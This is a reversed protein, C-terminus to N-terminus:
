KLAYLPWIHWNWSTRTLLGLKNSCFKKFPTLKIKKCALLVLYCQHLVQCGKLGSYQAAPRTTASLIHRGALWHRHHGIPRMCASCATRCLVLTVVVVLLAVKVAWVKCSQCASMDASCHCCSDHFSRSCHPLYRKLYSVWALSFSHRQETQKPKNDQQRFCGCWQQEQQFM